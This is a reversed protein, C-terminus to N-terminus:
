LGTSRSEGVGVGWKGKGIGARWCGGKEDPSFCILLPSFPHRLFPPFLEPAKNENAHYLLHSPHCSLYCTRREHKLLFSAFLLHSPLPRPLRHSHPLPPPTAIILFSLPLSIPSRTALSPVQTGAHRICIAASTAKLSPPQSSSVPAWPSPRIQGPSGSFLSVGTQRRAGRRREGKGSAASTSRLPEDLCSRAPVALASPIQFLLRTHTQRDTQEEEFVRKLSLLPPLLFLESISGTLLGLRFDPVCRGPSSCCGSPCRALAAQRLHVGASVSELDLLSSTVSVSLKFLCYSEPATTCSEPVM